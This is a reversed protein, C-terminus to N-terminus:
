KTTAAIIAGSYCSFFFIWEFFFSNPSSFIFKIDGGDAAVATAFKERENNIKM